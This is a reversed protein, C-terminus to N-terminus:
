LECAELSSSSSNSSSGSGNKTGRHDYKRQASYNINSNSSDFHLHDGNPNDDDVHPIIFPHLVNTCYPTDSTDESQSGSLSSKLHDQYKNKRRGIADEGEEGGRIFPTPYPSINPLNYLPSFPIGNSPSYHLHFMQSKELSIPSGGGQQSRSSINSQDTPLASARCRIPELEKLQKQQAGEDDSHDEAFLGYRSSRYPVHMIDKRDATHPSQDVTETVRSFTPSENFDNPHATKNKSIMRMLYVKKRNANYRNRCLTTFFSSLILYLAAIAIVGTLIIDESLRM